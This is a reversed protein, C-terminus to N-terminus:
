KVMMLYAGPVDYKDGDFPNYWDMCWYVTLQDLGGRARYRHGHGSTHVLDPGRHPFSSHFIFGARNGDHM